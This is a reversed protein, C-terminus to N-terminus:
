TPIGYRLTWGSHFWSAVVVIATRIGDRMRHCLGCAAAEVHFTWWTRFTACAISSAADRPWTAPRPQTAPSRYALIGGRMGKTAGHFKEDVVKAKEGFRGSDDDAHKDDHEGHSTQGGLAGQAARGGAMDLDFPQVIAQLVHPAGHRLRRHRRGRHAPLALAVGLRALPVLAFFAAPAHEYEIEVAVEVGARHIGQATFDRRHHGRRFLVVLHHHTHFASAARYVAVAEARRLEGAHAFAAQLEGDRHVLHRGAAAIQHRRHRVMNERRGEGHDARDAHQRLDGVDVTQEPLVIHFHLDVGGAFVLAREVHQARVGLFPAHFQALFQEIRMRQKLLENGSPPGLQIQLGDGRALRPVAM